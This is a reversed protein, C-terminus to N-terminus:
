SDTEHARLHTYSVTEIGSNNNILSCVNLLEEKVTFETLWDEGTVYSKDLTEIISEKSYSELVEFSPLVVLQLNIWFSEGYHDYALTFPNESEYLELFYDYNRKELIRPINDATDGLLAQYLLAQYPNTILGQLRKSATKYTSFGIEQLGGKKTGWMSMRPTVLM